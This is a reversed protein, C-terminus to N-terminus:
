QKMAPKPKDAPNVYVVDFPGDGQCLLMSNAKLWAEHATKSPLYMTGGQALDHKKGDVETTFTGKVTTCLENPTHWHKPVHYDKAVKVLFTVSKTTPDEHLVAMMAGPPLGEAPVWKMDATNMTVMGAMAPKAEQALAAASAVILLLALMALFLFRKDRM